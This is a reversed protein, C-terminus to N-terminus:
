ELRNLADRRLDGRSELVQKARTVFQERLALNSRACASAKIMAVLITNSCEEVIVDHLISDCLAFQGRRFLEDLSDLILDLASEVYGGQELRKAREIVDSLSISLEKHCTHADGSPVATSTPRGEQLEIQQADEFERYDSDDRLQQQKRKKDRLTKFDIVTDDRFYGVTNAPTPGCYRDGKKYAEGRYKKRGKAATSGTGRKTCYEDLM